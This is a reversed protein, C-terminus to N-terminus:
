TGGGCNDCCFGGDNDRLRGDSGAGRGRPVMQAVEVVRAVMTADGESDAGDVSGDGGSCAIVSSDDGSGCTGCQLRM